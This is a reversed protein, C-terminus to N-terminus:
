SEVELLKLLEPMKLEHKVAVVEAAKLFCEVFPHCQSCDDHAEQLDHLLELHSTLRQPLLGLNSLATIQMSKDDIAELEAHSLLHGV